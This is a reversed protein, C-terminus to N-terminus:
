IWSIWEEHNSDIGHVCDDYRTGLEKTIPGPVGDGLRRGDIEGVPTIGVASGSLFAEDALYVDDKTMLREEVRLDRARALEIITDRTIGELAQHRHPIWLSRDRVVFFNAASAEAVFGNQDFILADDAGALRAEQLALMATMYNANAKAKVLLSNNARSFSSSKLKIGRESPGKYGAGGLWPLALVAVRVRLDQGRPSLTTTGAHFVFPRVYADRLANRRVVELQVENLLDAGFEGPIKIGLLHASRFLRRTHDHLRFLGVRDGCAYARVGEFVGFGYHHDCIHM